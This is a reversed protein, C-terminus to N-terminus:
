CSTMSYMYLKKYVQALLELGLTYPPVQKFFRKFYGQNFVDDPLSAVSPEDDAIPMAKYPLKELLKFYDHDMFASSVQTVGSLTPRLM